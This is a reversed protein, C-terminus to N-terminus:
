LNLVKGQNVAANRTSLFERSVRLMKKLGPLEGLYHQDNFYLQEYINFDWMPQVMILRGKTGRSNHVGTDKVAMRSPGLEELFM